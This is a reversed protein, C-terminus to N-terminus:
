ITVPPSVQSDYYNQNSIFAAPDEDSFLTFYCFLQWVKMARRSLSMTTSEFWFWITPVLSPLVHWFQLCFSSLFLLWVKSSRNPNFKSTSVWIGRLEFQNLKSYFCSLIVRNTVIVTIKGSEKINRKWNLPAVCPLVSLSVKVHKRILELLFKVLGSEPCKM